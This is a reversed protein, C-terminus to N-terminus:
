DKNKLKPALFYRIYGLKEIIYEVMIPTYYTPSMSLSVEDALPTAKTFMNLYRSAFTLEEEMNINVNKLLKINATGIDGAASFYIYDNHAARCNIVVDEGIQLLNHCVRAFESSPLKIVCTYDPLTRSYNEQDINILKMHFQSVKKQSPSVLTFSVYDPIADNFKITITDENDGCKLIKSMTRLDMGMTISRDCRYNDFGEAALYVSVLSVHPTDMAEFKIGSSSFNWSVTSLLDKVAELLGKMLGNGLSAELM